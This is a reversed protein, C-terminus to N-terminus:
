ELPEDVPRAKRKKSTQAPAGAGLVRQLLAPAVPRNGELAEEPVTDKQRFMRRAQLLPVYAHSYRACALM